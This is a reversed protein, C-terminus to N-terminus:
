AGGARQSVPSARRWARATRAAQLLTPFTAALVGTHRPHM